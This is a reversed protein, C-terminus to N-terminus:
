CFNDTQFLNSLFTVCIYASIEFKTKVVGSFYTHIFIVSQDIFIKPIIVTQDHRFNNM